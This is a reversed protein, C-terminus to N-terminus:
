RIDDLLEELVRVGASRERTDLSEMLDLAVAALPTIGDAFAVPSTVVRIVVDGESADPILGCEDVLAGYDSDLAYGDVGAGVIGSGLDFRTALGGYEVASRGTVALREALLTRTGAGWGRMRHTVARRRALFAIDHASSRRLRHVLRTSQAAPLWDASNGSLRSLAAWAVSENWPRGRQRSMQGLRYVSAADLLFAGGIERVIALDGARALRAVQRRSVKLEAAADSVSMEGM